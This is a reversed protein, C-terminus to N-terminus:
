DINLKNKNKVYVREVFEVYIPNAQFVNRASKPLRLFYAKKIFVNDLKVM